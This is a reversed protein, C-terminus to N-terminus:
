SVRENVSVQINDTNIRQIIYLIVRQKIIQKEKKFLINQLAKSGTGLNVFQRLMDM